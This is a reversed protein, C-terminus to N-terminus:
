ENGKHFAMKYVNSITPVYITTKKPNGIYCAEKYVTVELYSSHQCAWKDYSLNLVDQGIRTPWQFRGVGKRRRGQCGEAEEM